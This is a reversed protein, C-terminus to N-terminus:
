IVNTQKNAPNYFVLKISKLLTQTPPHFIPWTPVQSITHFKDGSHLM